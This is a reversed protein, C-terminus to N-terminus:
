RSSKDLLLPDFPTLSYGRFGALGCAVASSGGRELPLVSASLATALEQYHAHLRGFCTSGCM